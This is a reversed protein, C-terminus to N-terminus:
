IVEVPPFKIVYGGRVPMITARVISESTWGYQNDTYESPVGILDYYDAVSSSGYNHANETISTLVHSAELRDPIIYENVGYRVGVVRNNAPNQHQHHQSPQVNSHTRNINNYQTYQQPHRHIPQGPRGPIGKDRYVLRSAGSVITDYVLNKIAPIIIEDAVYTGISPLGDPGLVGTVLRNLLGKKVKKPQVSVVKKLPEKKENAEKVIEEEKEIKMNNKAEIKNYDKAM